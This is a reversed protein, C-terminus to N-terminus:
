GCALVGFAIALARDARLARAISTGPWRMFHRPRPKFGCAAKAAASKLDAANVMEGGRSRSRTPPLRSCTRIARIPAPRPTTAARSCDGTSVAPRDSYCVDAFGVTASELHRPRQVVM